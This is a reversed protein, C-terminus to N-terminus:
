PTPRDHPPNATFLTASRDCSPEDSPEPLLSPLGVGLGAVAVGLGLVWPAPEHRGVLLGIGVVVVAGGAALVLWPILDM